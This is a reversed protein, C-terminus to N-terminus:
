FYPAVLGQIKEPRREIDRFTRFLSRCLDEPSEFFVNHTASTRTYQWLRETAKFEPAYAPLSFVELSRRHDELWQKVEPAKHYSAKDQILYLRHRRRYFSPVM